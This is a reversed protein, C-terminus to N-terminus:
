SLRIVARHPPHCLLKGLNHECGITHSKNDDFWVNLRNVFFRSLDKALFMRDFRVICDPGRPTLVTNLIRSTIYMVSYIMKMINHIM